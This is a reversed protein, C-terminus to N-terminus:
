QPLVLKRKDVSVVDGFDWSVVKVCDLNTNLGLSDVVGQTSMGEGSVCVEVDVVVKIRYKNDM